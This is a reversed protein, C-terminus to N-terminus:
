SQIRRLYVYKANMGNLNVKEVDRLNSDSEQIKIRGPFIQPLLNTLVGFDQFVFIRNNPVNKIVISLPFLLDMVFHYYGQTSRTPQLTIMKKSQSLWLITLQNKILRLTCILKSQSLSQISLKKFFM